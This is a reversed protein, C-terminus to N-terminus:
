PSSNPTNRWGYTEEQCRFVIGPGLKEYASGYNLPEEIKAWYRFNRHDAARYIYENFQTAELSM